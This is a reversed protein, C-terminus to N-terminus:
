QPAGPHSLWNLALEQNLSLTMIGPDRSQAGCGAWHRTYLRSIERGRGRGESERERERLYIFLDKKFTLQPAGPHSLWNLTQSKIEAWTMIEPNHSWAGHWAWIRSLIRERGRERDRGLWKCMSDRARARERERFVFVFKISLISPVMFDFSSM